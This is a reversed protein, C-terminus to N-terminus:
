QVVRSRDRVPAVDGHVPDAPLDAGGRRGRRGRTGEGQVLLAGVAQRVAVELDKTHGEGQRRLLGVGQGGAAVHGGGREGVHPDAGGGLGRVPVARADVLGQDVGDDRHVAGLAGPVDGAAGGGAQPFAVHEAKTDGRRARAGTDVVQGRHEGVLVRVVQPVPCAMRGGVQRAHQRVADVLLVRRRFQPERESGVRVAGAQGTGQEDGGTRGRPGPFRDFQDYAGVVAQAVPREVGVAGEGVRGRGREIGPRVYAVGDAGEELRHPGLRRCTVPFLHQYPPLGTRPLGQLGRVAGHVGGGGRVLLGLPGVGDGDAGGAVDQRLEGPYPAPDGPRLRLDRPQVRGGTVRAYLVVGRRLLLPPKPLLPLPRQGLHFAELLEDLGGRLGARGGGLPLAGQVRGLLTGVGDPVLPHGRCPVTLPVLLRHGGGALLGVPEPGAEHLGALPLVGKFPLQCAGLIGHCPRLMRHPPRVIVEPALGPDAVRDLGFEAPDFPVQGPDPLFQGLLCAPM